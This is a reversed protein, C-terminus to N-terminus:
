VSMKPMEDSIGEMYIGLLFSSKLLFLYFKFRGIPCFFTRNLALNACKSLTGM